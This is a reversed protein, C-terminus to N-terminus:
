CQSRLVVGTFREIDPTYSSLAGDYDYYGSCLIVLRAHLHTRLDEESVILNWAQQDSSWKASLFGHHFRIKQDIDYLATSEHMYKRVSDGDM